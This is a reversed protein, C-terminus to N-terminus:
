FGNKCYICIKFYFSISYLMKSQTDLTQSQPPVIKHPSPLNFLKHSDKNPNRFGIIVVQSNPPQQLHLVYQSQDNLVKNGILDESVYSKLLLFRCIHYIQFHQCYEAIWSKLCMQRCMNELESSSNNVQFTLTKERWM